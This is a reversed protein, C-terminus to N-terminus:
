RPELRQTLMRDGDFVFWGNFERGALFWPMWVADDRWMEEYPIAVTDVWFGLAEDTEVLTGTADAARFVECELSYGDVFQFRLMGASEVGTPTVGIEEQTERVAAERATEGPEIRGGPGNVKGAGLGRKKRILLIRGHKVVFCLVAREKPVWTSWDPEAFSM